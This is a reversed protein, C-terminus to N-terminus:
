EMLDQGEPVLGGGRLVVVQVGEVAQISISARVNSGLLGVSM